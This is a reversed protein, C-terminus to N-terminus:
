GDRECLRAILEDLVDIARALTKVDDDPLTAMEEHLLARYESRLQEYVDRGVPTLTVLVARRDGPDDVRTLWGREQLRNVLSTIAPQTVGEGAALDTIRQPKASVARLVGVETRSVPLSTRSLFLRALTAARQPLAEAIDDVQRVRGRHASVSGM